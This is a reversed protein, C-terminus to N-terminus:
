RNAAEACPMVQCGLGLQPARQNLGQYDLVAISDVDVLALRGKLRVNLRQRIAGMHVRLHDPLGLAIILKLPARSRAFTPMDAALRQGAKTGARVALLQLLTDTVKDVLATFRYPPSGKSAPVLDDLALHVTLNRYDRVELLYLQNNQGQWGVDMEKLAQGCLCRYSSLDQLRFSKGPPFNLRLGSEEFAHDTM